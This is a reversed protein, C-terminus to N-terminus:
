SNFSLELEACFFSNEWGEVGVPIPDIKSFINEVIKMIKKSRCLFTM